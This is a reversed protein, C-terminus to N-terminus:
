IHKRTHWSHNEKGQSDIEKPCPTKLIEEDTSIYNNKYHKVLSIIRKFSKGSGKLEYCWSGTSDRFSHVLRHNVKGRHKLSLVLSGPVTTSERVLFCGEPTNEMKYETDERSMKGHYWDELSMLQSMRSSMVEDVFEHHQTFVVYAGVHLLHYYPNIQGSGSVSRHVKISEKYVRQGLLSVPSSAPM